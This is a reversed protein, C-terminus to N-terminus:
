LKIGVTRSDDYKKCMEYTYKAIKKITILM